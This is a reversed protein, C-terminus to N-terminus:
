VEKSLVGSIEKDLEKLKDKVKILENRRNELQKKKEALNLWIKELKAIEEDVATTEQELSALKQIFEEAFKDRVAFQVPTPNLGEERAANKDKNGSKGAGYRAQEPAPDAQVVQNRAAKLTEIAKTDFQQHVPQNM